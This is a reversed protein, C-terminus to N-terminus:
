SNGIRGPRMLPLKMENSQGLVTKEQRNITTVPWIPPGDDNTERQCWISEYHRVMAEVPQLWSPADDTIIMRRYTHRKDLMWEGRNRLADAQKIFGDEDKPNGALTHNMCAARLSVRAKHLRGDARPDQSIEEAIDEAEASMMECNLFTQLKLDEQRNRMESEEARREEETKM